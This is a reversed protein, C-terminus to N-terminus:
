NYKRFQVFRFESTKVDNEESAVRETTSAVCLIGRKQLANVMAFIFTMEGMIHVTVTSVNRAVDRCIDDMKRLYEECLVQIYEEDGVPDIKPFPLDIVKGYVQAAALQQSTWNTSPHNSLNILM